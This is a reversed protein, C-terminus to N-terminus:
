GLFQQNKEIAPNRAFERSQLIGIMQNVKYIGLFDRQKGLSTQTM